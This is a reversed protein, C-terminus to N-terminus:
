EKRGYKNEKKFFSRIISWVVGLLILIMIIGVLSAISLGIIKLFMIMSEIM